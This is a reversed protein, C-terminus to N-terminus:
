EDSGLWIERISDDTPVSLLNRALPRLWPALEPAPLVKAAPTRPDYQLSAYVNDWSSITHLTAGASLVARSARRSSVATQLPRVTLYLFTAILAMAVLMTRVNFRLQHRALVIAAVVLPLGAWFLCALWEIRSNTTNWGFARLAAVWGVEGLLLTL